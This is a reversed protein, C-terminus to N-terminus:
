SEVRVIDVSSAAVGAGMDWSGGDRGADGRGLRVFTMSGVDKPCGDVSGRPVSLPVAVGVGSAFMAEISCWGM